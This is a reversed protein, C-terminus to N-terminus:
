YHRLTFNNPHLDAIRMKFLFVVQPKKYKTNSGTRKDPLNHLEQPLFEILESPQITIAKKKM